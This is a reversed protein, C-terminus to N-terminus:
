LLEKYSMAEIGIGTRDSYFRLVVDADEAEDGSFIHYLVGYRIFTFATDLAESGCFTEEDVYFHIESVNGTFEIKRFTKGTSDGSILSSATEEMKAKLKKRIDNRAEETMKFCLSGDTTYVNINEEGAFRSIDDGNYVAALEEPLTVSVESKGNGCSAFIISSFLAFFVTLKKM